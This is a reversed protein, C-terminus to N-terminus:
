VNRGYPCVRNLGFLHCLGSATVGYILYDKGHRQIAEWIRPFTDNVFTTGTLVVIDVKRVLDEMRTEGHWIEVGHKKKGINEPDLDTLMVRGVGFDEVLADLIAPNCGILGVMANGEMERVLRAIERACKEPEDDRCHVTGEIQDLHRLVANLAAVFLARDANSEMRRKLIERVSGQFESPADTFAHGRALKFRAEIIREKGLLIPFDNRQPTGIAEEPKLLGVRVMLDEDLLDHQGM